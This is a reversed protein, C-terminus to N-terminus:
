EQVSVNVPHTAIAIVFNTSKDYYAGMVSCNHGDYVKGKPCICVGFICNPKNEAIKTCEMGDGAYGPLCKCEFTDM